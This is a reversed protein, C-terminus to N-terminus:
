IDESNTKGKWKLRGLVFGNDLYNHLDCKNIMKSVKGNNVHITGKLKGLHSKSQKLKMEPSNHMGKRPHSLRGVVYGLDFYTQLESSKVRIEVGDKNLSIKDLNSKANPNGTVWGDSIFKELESKDIPKSINDKTVYIKGTFLEKCKDSRYKIFNEYLDDYNDLTDLDLLNPLVDTLLKVSSANAGKFHYTKACKWLYYHALIHSSYTLNVINDESNNIDLKNHVYYSRPIIHHKQTKFKEAKTERNSEILEVYKDLWENDKVIGLELLKQKLNEM